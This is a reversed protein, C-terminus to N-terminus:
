TRTGHALERCARRRQRPGACEQFGRDLLEIGVIEERLHDPVEIPDRTPQPRLDQGDGDREAM